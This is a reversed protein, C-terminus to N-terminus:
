ARFGRFAEVGPFYPEPDVCRVLRGDELQRYPGNGTALGVPVSDDVLPRLDVAQVLTTGTVRASQAHSSIPASVFLLVITAVRGRNVLGVWHMRIVRIGRVVARGGPALREPSM